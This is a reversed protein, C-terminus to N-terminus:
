ASTPDASGDPLYYNYTARNTWSTSYRDYIGNAWLTVTTGASMIVKKIKWTHEDFSNTGKQAFGLYIVDTGVEEVVDPKEGIFYLLDNTTSAYAM